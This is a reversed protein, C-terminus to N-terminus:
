FRIENPPNKLNAVSDIIRYFEKKSIKTILDYGPPTVFFLGDKQSHLNNPETSIPILQSKNLQYLGYELTTFDVKQYGSLLNGYSLSIVNRGDRYGSIYGNTQRFFVGANLAKLSDILNQMNPLDINKGDKVAFWGWNFDGCNHTLGIYDRGFRM